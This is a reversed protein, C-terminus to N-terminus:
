EKTQIDAYQIDRFGLDMAHTSNSETLRQLAKKNSCVVQTCEQQVQRALQTAAYCCFFLGHVFVLFVQSRPDLWRPGSNSSVGPGYRNGLIPKIFCVFEWPKGDHICCFAWLNQNLLVFLNGPNAM